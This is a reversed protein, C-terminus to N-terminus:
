CFFISNMKSVLLSLELQDYGHAPPQTQSQWKAVTAQLSVNSKEPEENLTSVIQDNLLNTLLQVVYGGYIKSTLWEQEHNIRCAISIQDTRSAKHEKDYKVFIYDRGNTCIAYIPRTGLSRIHLYKASLLAQGIAKEALDCKVELVLINRKVVSDGTRVAVIFSYDAIGSSQIEVHDDEKQKGINDEWDLRLSILKENTQHKEALFRCIPCLTSEVFSSVAREKLNILQGFDAMWQIMSNRTRKLVLELEESSLSNEISLLDEPEKFNNFSRFSFAPGM